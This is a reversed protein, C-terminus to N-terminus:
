GCRWCGRLGGADHGLALRPRTRDLAQIPSKEDVSLVIAHDPSNLSREAKRPTKAQTSLTLHGPEDM